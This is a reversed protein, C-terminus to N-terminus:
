GQGRRLPVVSVYRAIESLIELTAQETEALGRLFLLAVAAGPRIDQTRLIPYLEATLRLIEASRGQRAYLVALDLLAEAAEGGLGEDEFGRRADVFATEAERPLGLAEGIRGELHRLRVLEPGDHLRRYLRRARHLAQLAEPGRAAELFRRAQRHFAAARPRIEAETRLDDRDHRDDARDHAPLRRPGAPEAEALSWLQRTVAGCRACGALLHRVVRRREPGDAANRMFRELLEPHPHDEPM